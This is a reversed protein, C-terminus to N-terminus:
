EAAEEASARAASDKVPESVPAEKARRILVLIREVAQGLSSVVDDMEM